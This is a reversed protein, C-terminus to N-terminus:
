LRDRRGSAPDPQDKAPPKVAPVRLQAAQALLPILACVGVAAFRIASARMLSRKRAADASAGLLRCSSRMLRRGAIFVLTMGILISALAPATAALLMPMAGSRGMVTTLNQFFYVGFGAAASFLIVRAMGGERAPRLSFSAAMFVMAAFLAPLAYLTYLYLQYRM